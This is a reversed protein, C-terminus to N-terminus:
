AQQHRLGSHSHPAPALFELEFLETRRARNPVSLNSNPIISKPVCLVPTSTTFFRVKRSLVSYLGPLSSGGSRYSLALSEKILPGRLLTSPNNPPTVSYESASNESETGTCGDVNTTALYICGFSRLQLGTRNLTGICAHFCTSAQQSQLLWVGIV